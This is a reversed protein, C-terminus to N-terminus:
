ARKYFSSEPPTTKTTARWLDIDADGLFPRVAPGVANCVAIFRAEDADDSDIGIAMHPQGEGIVVQYLFAERVSAQQRLVAAAAERIGEPITKPMGVLMRTGAPLRAARPDATPIPLGEAIRQMEARVVEMGIPGRPNVFLSGWDEDLAIKVIAAGPMAVWRTDRPYQRRLADEDTFALGVTKGDHQGVLVSVRQGPIAVEGHKAGGFPGANTAMLLVAQSLAQLAPFRTQPTAVGTKAGAEMAQVLDRNAASSPDRRGFLPM